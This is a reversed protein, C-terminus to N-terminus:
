SGVYSFTMPGDGNAYLPDPTALTFKYFSTWTAGGDQSIDGQAVDLSLLTIRMLDGQKGYLTIGPWYGNATYTFGDQQSWKLELSAHPQADATTLTLYSVFSGDQPSEPLTGVTMTVIDGVTMLGTLTPAPAPTPVPVPTPAPAAPQKTVVAIAESIGILCAMNWLQGSIQNPSMGNASAQNCLNALDDSFKGVIAFGQTTLLPTTPATPDDALQQLDAIVDAITAPTTTSDTM